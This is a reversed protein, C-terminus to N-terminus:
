FLVTNSLSFQLTDQKLPLLWFVLVVVVVVDAVVVVIVDAAVVVVDAVVVVVIYVAVVFWCYVAVWLWPSCDVFWDILSHVRDVAFGFCVLGVLFWALGSFRDILWFSSAQLSSPVHVVVRLPARCVYSVVLTLLVLSCCLWCFVPIIPIMENNIGVM